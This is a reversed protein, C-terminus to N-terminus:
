GIETQRTKGRNVETNVAEIGRSLGECLRKYEEGHADGSVTPTTNVDLIVARGKHMVFDIKGYDLGIRRRFEEVEPPPAGFSGLVANNDKVFPDSGTLTRGVGRDGLVIWMRVTYTGGIREPLFREVVLHRNRFVGRPLDRPSDFIYYRSLSRAFRLLARERAPHMTLRRRIREALTPGAERGFRHDSLGACNADTKVIVPGTWDSDPGILNTSVTRKRIDRVRRNVVRPHSQMLAWAGDPVVSCDLHPFIVDAEPVNSLGHVVDVRIGRERWNAIVPWIRYRVAEADRQREHFLVAISRAPARM